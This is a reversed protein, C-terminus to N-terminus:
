PHSGDGKRPKLEPKTKSDHNGDSKGASGNDRSTEKFLWDPFSCRLPRPNSLVRRPGSKEVVFVEARVELESDGPKFCEKFNGDKPSDPGWRYFLMLPYEVSKVQGVKLFVREGPGPPKRLSTLVFGEERGTKVDKVQLALYPPFPAIGEPDAVVFPSPLRFMGSRPGTNSFTVCVRDPSLQGGGQIFVVQVGIESLDLDRQIDEAAFSSNLALLFSLVLQQKMALEGWLLM